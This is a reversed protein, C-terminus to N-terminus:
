LTDILQHLDEKGLREIYGQLTSVIEAVGRGAGAQWSVGATARAAAPAAVATGRRRSRSWEAKVKSVHKPRISVGLQKTLRRSIAAPGEGPFEALARRISESKSVQQSKARAV